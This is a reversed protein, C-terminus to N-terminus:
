LNWDQKAKIPRISPVRGTRNLCAEELLYIWIFFSIGNNKEKRIPMLKIIASFYKLKLKVMFEM